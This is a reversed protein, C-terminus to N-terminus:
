AGDEAGFAAAAAQRVREGFWRLGPDREQLASRYLALAIPELELPCPRMVLGFCPAMSALVGSPVTLLLDTQALVPPVLMFHPLVPGPRRELGAAALAEDVPGQGERMTRVRVHRHAMWADLGWDDLAPHGQRAFVAWDMQVLPEELVGEVDASAAPAIVLDHRGHVLEGFVGRRASVLEVGVSPAAEEMDALLGPLMSAVFDPGALAFVRESEGPNWVGDDALVRDIACLLRRVEPALREAHPTPTMKGGVRVLVPDGLLSRLRALAHSVASQTRGLRKAARTVHREELLVDFVVLLNLDIQALAQVNMM